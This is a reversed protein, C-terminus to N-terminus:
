FVNDSVQSHHSKTLDIELKSNSDTTLISSQFPTSSESLLIFPEKKHSASSSSFSLTTNSKANSKESMSKIYISSESQSYKGLENESSVKELSSNGTFTSMTNAKKLNNKKEIEPMKTQTKKCLLANKVKRFEARNLEYIKNKEESSLTRPWKIIDEISNPLPRNLTEPVYLSLFGCVIAISGYIVPPLTPM